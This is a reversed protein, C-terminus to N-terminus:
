TTAWASRTATGCCRAHGAAHVAPQVGARDPAPRQRADARAPPPHRPRLAADRKDPGFAAFVRQASRGADAPRSRARRPQAPLQGVAGGHPREYTTARARRAAAAIDGTALAYFLRQNVWFNLMMQLRDGDSASTSAPERRPPVNAEALLIADRRRWQLFDRMEHLLEYDRRRARRGRGQKEILFPVADMRFGSVGLQLWFGMIRM